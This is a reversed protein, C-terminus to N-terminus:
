IVQTTGPMPIAYRGEADPLTPPMADFSYGSPRPAITSALADDWKLQKGSYTAMRGFIATMTSLAGYEAENYPRDERVAAFLDDHEVQYADTREGEYRWTGAPTEIRSGSVNATGLTGHAHESVSSWTQPIHRCESLM